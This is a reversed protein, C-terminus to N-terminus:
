CRLLKPPTARSRRSHLAMGPTLLILQHRQSTMRGPRADGRWFSIAPGQERSVERVLRRQALELACQVNGDGRM